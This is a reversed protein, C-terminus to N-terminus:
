GGSVPPLFGVEDGEHLITQWSAFQKNVAVSISGDFLLEALAPNNDQCYDTMLQEVSVQQEPLELHLYKKGAVEALQAFLYVQIM